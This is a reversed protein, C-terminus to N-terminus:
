TKKIKQGTKTTLPTKIVHQFEKIEKLFRDKEQNTDEKEALAELTERSKEKTTEM